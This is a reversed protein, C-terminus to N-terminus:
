IRKIPIRVSVNTGLGPKSVFVITGNLLQVREQMGALGLGSQNHLAKSVDFGEGNDEVTLSIFNEGHKLKVAANTANSHKIINSLSEQIIRFISIEKDGSFIGDISDIESELDILGSANKLLDTVARTLGVRDILQPRLDSTIERVEELAQAASNKIKDLEKEVVEADNRKKIGLMARNKIVVLSQGLGDHLESAIRKREAEQAEILRKSYESKTNAIRRLNSIRNYFISGIILAGLLIILFIFWWRQYFYPLKKIKVFDGKENWVGDRNAALVHFTYEGPPLNNYFAVRRTGVDNWENELGELRYKFKVLPSNVFSLGTYHIELNNQSPQIEVSGYYSKIENNNVLIEEIHVPPPFENVAIKNPDIVAVGEQTPFWLEGNSRQIGAPQKGGNGETNKLGDAQNYGVSLVRSIKGDSFENLEQKRVRYIGNNTNIWFWGNHDELTCFVNSNFLGDNATIRTIKGANVRILGSDYTGIWLIGRADEYISRIHDTIPQTESLIPEFKGNRYKVLGRQTGILVTNDKTVLLASIDISPLGDATSYKTIEGNFLRYLGKTETGFWLNGHRDEATAVFIGGETNESPDNFQTVDTFKEKYFYGLKGTLGVWLRGTTDEFISSIQNGGDAAIRYKTLRNNKDYKILADSWTGVWVNNSSDEFIPYVNDGNTKWENKGFVRIVQPTIKWLGTKWSGAWVGRERDIALSYIQDDDSIKEIKTFDVEASNLSSAPIKFLGNSAAIWLDGDFDELFCFLNKNSIEQLKGGRIRFSAETRYSIWVNGASDEFNIPVYQLARKPIDFWTVKRELIRRLGTSDSLWIGGERDRLTIVSEANATPIDLKEFKGNRYRYQAAETSFILNGGSDTFLKGSTIAGEFDKGKSFSVWAGNEHKVLSLSDTLFWLRGAQDETIQKFRSESIGQTKTKNFVKFRVGDFRIIGGATVGWIYGDKAQLVGNVSNQPLGDDTTWRDIRSQGATIPVVFLVSFCAAVLKLTYSKRM